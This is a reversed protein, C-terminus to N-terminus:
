RNAAKLVINFEGDRNNGTAKVEKINPGPSTWEPPIRKLDKASRVEIWLRGKGVPAGAVGDLYYFTYYGVDDTVGTATRIRKPGDQSGDRVDELPTFKVAVGALPDGNITVTGSVAGLEPLDIADGMMRDMMFYLLFIGVAGGIAHPAYRVLERGAGTLDILPQKEKVPMSSAKVRSEDMSKSLLDRANASANIQEDAASAAASMSAARAKSSGSSTYLRRGQSDTAPGKPKEEVPASLGASAKPGPGDELLFAAPDFDDDDSKKAAAPEATEASKKPASKTERKEASPAKEKASSKQSAPKAETVDDQARAAEPNPVVFKTKCKPCKGDTGALEVKIKLVSDCEPCQYRITMEALGKM